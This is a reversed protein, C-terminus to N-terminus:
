YSYDFRHLKVHDCRSLPTCRTQERSDLKLKESLSSIISGASLDESVSFLLEADKKVNIKKNPTRCSKCVLHRENKTIKVFNECPVDYKHKHNYCNDKPWSCNCLQYRVEQRTKPDINTYQKIGKSFGLTLGSIDFDLQDQKEVIKRPRGRKRKPKKIRIGKLSDKNKENSFGLTLESSHDFSSEEKYTNLQGMKAYHEEPDYEVDSKSFSNFKQHPQYTPLILLEQKEVVPLKKKGSRCMKCIIHRDNDGIKVRRDCPDGEKHKKRKCKGESKNCMCFKFKEENKTQFQETKDKLESEESGMSGM